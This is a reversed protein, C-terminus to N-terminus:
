GIRRSEMCSTIRPHQGEPLTRLVDAIEMDLEQRIKDAFADSVGPLVPGSVFFLAQEVDGARLSEFSKQLDSYIPKDSYYCSAGRDYKIDIGHMRCGRVAYWAVNPSHHSGYLQLCAERKGIAFSRPSDSVSLLYALELAKANRVATGNIRPKGTLTIVHFDIM